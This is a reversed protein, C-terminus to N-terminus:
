KRATILVHGTKQDVDVNVNLVDSIFSLPVVTRGRDIFATYELTTRQGNLLASRSGIRITAENAAGRATVTRTQGQWRVQGGAAEYLHRFPSLAVGESVRAEVDMSVLRANYSISLPGAMNLRTGRQVRVTSVASNVQQVPATRVPRAAAPAVPAAVPKPLATAPRAVPKAAPKAVPKVAPKAVPKAVPRTAPKVQVTRTGTPTLHRVNTQVPAPAGVRMPKVASPKATAATYASAMPALSVPQAAPVVPAVPPQVPMRRETRGGPNNVFVRVKRSRFSVNNDDVVLIQVEHWGNPLMETDLVYTYPSVNTMSRMEGNVIFTVMRPRVSNRVGVRIEMLGMVTQGARPTSITVPSDVPAEVTVESVQTALLKGELDFILAEVRNAGENLAAADVRFDVENTVSGNVSRTGISMGNVRLEILRADTHEFRVNITQGNLAREIVVEPLRFMAHAGSAGVVALAIVGLRMWHKLM